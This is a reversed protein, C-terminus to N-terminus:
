SLQEDTSRRSRWEGIRARIFATYEDRMPLEFDTRVRRREAVVPVGAKPNFGEKQYGEWYIGTGRRQWLPLDNFNIGRQFLLENKFDPGKGELRQTAEGVSAGEQRLTWYCWGNLACRGADGQRWRFYDEVEAETVALWVRSDFQAVEGSAHTFAASAIAASISVIKELERDFLEWDPPFLVSVEDSETYAYLGHMEELLARAAAVMWDRVRVDFPREFRTGVWKTFGRGDVRVVTWVGPLLRLSHFYEGERMRQEFRDQDM